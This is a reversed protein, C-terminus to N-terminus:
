WSCGADRIRGAEHELGTAAPPWGLRSAAGALGGPQVEPPVAPVGNINAALDTWFAERLADLAFGVLM